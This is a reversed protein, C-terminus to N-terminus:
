KRKYYDEVAKYLADVALLSCHLKPAPVGGLVKVLDDKTIKLADDVTKGKVVDCLVDSFSIAAACGLTKFKADIIISDVVKIFLEMIDGCARNGVIGVGSPKDITGANKPNRFHKLVEDSYKFASM